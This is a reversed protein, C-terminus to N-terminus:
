KRVWGKWGMAKAIEGVTIYKGTLKRSDVDRLKILEKKALEPPVGIFVKLNRYAVFGKWNDKPLMGKVARKITSIPSRPRKPSSKAPNRLTKLEFWIKYSEIVMKPDGSVVAKEANVVYVKFGEQLAKAVYSALRGLIAGEADVILTRRLRSVDSM